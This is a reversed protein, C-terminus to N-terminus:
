RNEFIYKKLLRALENINIPKATHANMGTELCHKIDETFADATMAIIPIKAADPRNLARIAKTADYGNMVPMRLDMLIADYYGEESNEFKEVCIQGNEAWDLELNLDSLIERAVEWNLENDEALLIRCGDLGSSNSETEVTPEQVNMHQKLAYYLTSKFLPKAVFSNIGANVAESEFESWDYASILLIPLDNGFSSRIKRATQIGNIGPLKWDLIVIHYQHNESLMQLAREGSLAWEANVGISALTNVATRCLDADDDVVLVNWAPLTMDAESVPAKKVDFTIHFETGKDLESKVDIKGDMADVIYKVISMGLGAGETKYVRENDARTYSEYLKKVFESSMGIGNDKVYIHIQVYEDGKPSDVESISFEISGEDPTYKVANSLLNLLVQNLRVGDCIIEETKINEIKVDFSQKKARVQPQVIGVIGEVVERLSVNAYSLTMKGSEIKSLDLVDNILGLLHKSSMSIKKLCNQVTDSDGANNLAISTMGVIANMPTRIDHSMNSLFESKAQTAILAENRVRELEYLQKKTMRYYQYFIYMLLAIIVVCILVVAVSWQTNVGNLIDDLAEYPMVMLLYWESYPMPIEYIQRKDGNIETLSSYRANESLAESLEKLYIEAAKTEDDTYQNRISTFYDPATIDSGNVVFTGDERLIHCYLLTEDSELSLSNTIYELPVAGVLGTSKEGNKMSYSANVGFIVVENGDTDLGIVVRREGKNLAEIFPAPRRPAFEKDSLCEFQGDESCFALYDFNRVKARYVLERYMDQATEDEPAVVEVLSEMQGFYQEITTEFNKSVQDGIGSMYLDAVEYVAQRSQSKMYISFVSFILVSFVGLGLFSLILFRGVKKNNDVVKM